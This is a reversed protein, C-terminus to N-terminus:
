RYTIGIFIVLEGFQVKINDTSTNETQPTYIRTHQTEGPFTKGCLMLYSLIGQCVLQLSGMARKKDRCAGASLYM